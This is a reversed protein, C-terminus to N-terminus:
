LLLSNVNRTCGNIDNKDLHVVVTENIHIVFQKLCFNKKYFFFAQTGTKTPTWLQIPLEEVVM